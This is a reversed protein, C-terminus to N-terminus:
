IYMHLTALRSISPSLFCVRVPRVVRHATVLFIDPLEIYNALRIVDTHRAGHCSHQACSWRSRRIVSFRCGLETWDDAMLLLWGLWGLWAAWCKCFVVRQMFVCPSSLNLKGRSMLTRTRHATSHLGDRQQSEDDRCTAVDRRYICGIPHCM